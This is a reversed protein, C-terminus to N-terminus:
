FGTPGTPASPGKSPKRGDSDYTLNLADARANDAAQQADIVTADEGLESVAASRSTLGNRIAEKKAAVDQTPNIYEWGQPIWLARQWPEPDEFYDPPADLKGFLVARNMWANWVPRCLQFVVTQHQDAQIQRRFESLIVRVLRDNVGTMDGTL